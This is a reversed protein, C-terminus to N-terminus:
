SAGKKIVKNFFGKLFDDVKKKQAKSLSNKLPLNINHKPRKFEINHHRNRYSDSQPPLSRVDGEVGNPEEPKLHDIKKQFDPKFDDPNRFPSQEFNYVWKELYDMGETPNDMGRRDDPNVSKLKRWKMGKVGYHVIVKNPM